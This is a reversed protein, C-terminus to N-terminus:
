QWKTDQDSFCSIFTSSAFWLTSMLLVHWSSCKTYTQHTYCEYTSYYLSLWKKRVMTVWAHFQLDLVCVVVQYWYMYIMDLHCSPCNTCTQHIYCWYTRYLYLSLWKKRYVMTVRLCSIYTLSVFRWTTDTSWTVIFLQHLNPSHIVGLVLWKKELRVPPRVCVCVCVCPRASQDSYPVRM